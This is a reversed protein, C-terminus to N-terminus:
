TIRVGKIYLSLDSDNGGFMAEDYRRHLNFISILIGFGGRVARYKLYTDHDFLVSVKAQLLYEGLDQEM